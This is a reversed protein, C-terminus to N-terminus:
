TSWDVAIIKKASFGRLLFYPLHGWAWRAAGEELRKTKTKKRRVSSGRMDGAAEGGREPGHQQPEVGAGGRNGTLGCGRRRSLQAQSM